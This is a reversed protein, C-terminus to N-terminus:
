HRAGNPQQKVNKDAIQQPEIASSPTNQALHHQEEVEEELFEVDFGADLLQSQIADPNTDQSSVLGWLIASRTGTKCHAIVPPGAKKMVESFEDINDQETINAGRVPIHVYELGLAAAELRAKDSTFGNEVESDPLNSIVTSFGFNKFRAMDGSSLVGTVSFQPTITKFNQM